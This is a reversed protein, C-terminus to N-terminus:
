ETPLDDWPPRWLLLRPFLVQGVERALGTSAEMRQEALTADIDLQGLVLRTFDAVNLKLHSRGVRRSVVKVGTRGIELQYKQGDVLLGLESPRKLGAKEARTAFVDTLRRLLKLPQLLRAMFVEGHDAEHSHRFGGAARLVKHLPCRPAAHLVISHRDHEIADRCARALLEAMVRRRGDEAILELIREGKTVAYGVVRTNTEDLDLLNPGDLAVYIQDYASRRVLWQWYPETRQLPGYARRIGQNYVRMLGAQEWRRWPRIHLGRRVRRSLGAVDLRALVRRADARSYHHRGCLAWGMRRFFHPVRTRLLGVFAGDHIMQREATRLLAHGLGRRRCEPATVVWALGAAPLQLRGFQM